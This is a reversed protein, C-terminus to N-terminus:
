AGVDVFELIMWRTAAPHAVIRRRADDIAIAARVIMLVQPDDARRCRHAATARVRRQREARERQPGSTAEARSYTLVRLTFRRRPASSIRGQGHVPERREGVFALGADLSRQQQGREDTGM